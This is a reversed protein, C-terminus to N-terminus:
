SLRILKNRWPVNQVNQGITFNLVPLVKSEDKGFVEHMVQDRIDKYLSEAYEYLASSFEKQMEDYVNVGVTRFKQVDDSKDKWEEYEKDVQQKSLAADTEPLTSYDKGYVAQTWSYKDM